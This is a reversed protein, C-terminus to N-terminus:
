RGAEVDARADRYATARAHAFIAAVFPDHLLMQPDFPQPIGGGRLRNIARNIRDLHDFASDGPAVVMRHVFWIATDQLETALALDVLPSRAVHPATATPTGTAGGQEALRRLRDIDVPSFCEFDGCNCGLHEVAERLLEDDSLEDFDVDKGVTKRM